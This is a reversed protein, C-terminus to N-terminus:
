PQVGLPERLPEHMARTSGSADTVLTGLGLLVLKPTWPIQSMYEGEALLERLGESAAVATPDCLALEELSTVTM